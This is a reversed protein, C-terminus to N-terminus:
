KPYTGATTPDNKPLKGVAFGCLWAMFGAAIGAVGADGFISEFFGVGEGGPMFSQQLAVLITTALFVGLRFYWKVNM